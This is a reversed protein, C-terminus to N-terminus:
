EGGKPDPDTEASTKEEELHIRTVTMMQRAKANAMTMGFFGIYAYAIWWASPHGGDKWVLGMSILIFIWGAFHTGAVVGRAVANHDPYPM